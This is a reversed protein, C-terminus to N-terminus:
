QIMQSLPQDLVPGILQELSQADGNSTILMDKVEINSSYSYGDYLVYPQLMFNQAMSEVNWVQLTEADAFFEVNLQLANLLDRLTLDPQKTSVRRMFSDMSSLATFGASINAKGVSNDATLAYEMMLGPQLLKTFAAIVEKASEDTAGASIGFQSVVDNYEEMAAVSLGKMNFSLEANDLDLPSNLGSAALGCTGSINDGNLETSTYFKLLDVSLKGTIPSKYSVGSTTFESTGAFVGSAIRTMDSNIYLDKLSLETGDDDSLEFSGLNGSFTIQGNNDVTTVEGGTYKVQVGNENADLSNVKLVSTATGSFNVSTVMRGLEGNDFLGLFEQAENSLDKTIVTTVINAASVRVGDDLGVPSHSIDHRLQFIIEANPATSARVNTIAVSNSLGSTYSANDFSLPKYDSLQTLLQHYTDQTQVGTYYSTGAWSASAVLPLALLIKKM